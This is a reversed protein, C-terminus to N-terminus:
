SNRETVSLENKFDRLFIAIENKLLQFKSVVNEIPIKKIMMLQDESLMTGQYKGEWPLYYDEIYMRILFIMKNLLERNKKIYQVSIKGIIAGDVFEFFSSLENKIRRFISITSTSTSISTNATKSENKQKYIGSCFQLVLIVLIYEIGLVSLEEALNEADKNNIISISKIISVLNEFISNYRLLKSNNLYVLLSQLINRKLILDINTTFLDNFYDRYVPYISHYTPHLLSLFVNLYSNLVHLVTFLGENKLHNSVRNRTVRQMYKDYLLDQKSNIKSLMGLIQTYQRLEQDDRGEGCRMVKEYTTGVIQLLEFLLSDDNLLNFLGKEGNKMRAIKQKFTRETKIRKKIVQPLDDYIKKQSDKEYQKVLRKLYQSPTMKVTDKVTQEIM